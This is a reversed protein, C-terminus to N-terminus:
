KEQIREILRLVLERSFSRSKAGGGKIRRSHMNGGKTGSKPSVPKLGNVAVSLGSQYTRKDDAM